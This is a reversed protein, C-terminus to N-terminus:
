SFRYLNIYRDYGFHSNKSEVKSDVFCDSLNFPAINTNIKYFGWGNTHPVNKNIDNFSTCVFYKCSMKANSIVRLAIDTTMHFLVDRCIILDVKPYEKTVIDNVQFKVRSCGYLKSNDNIMRDCADWGLYSSLKIDVKKFWNWDGCGLDLISMIEYDKVIDTLFQITEKSNNLHSGPGSLSEHGDLRKREVFKKALDFNTNM